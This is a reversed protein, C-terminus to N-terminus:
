QGKKNTTAQLVTAWFLCGAFIVNNDISSLSQKLVWVCTCTFLLIWQWTHVASLVIFSVPFLFMVPKWSFLLLSNIKQQNSPRQSREYILPMHKSSLKCMFTPQFSVCLHLNNPWHTIYLTYINSTSMFQECVYICYVNWPVSCVNCQCHIAEIICCGFFGLSTQLPILRNLPWM